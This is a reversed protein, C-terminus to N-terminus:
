QHFKIGVMSRRYQARQNETQNSLECDGYRIEGSDSTELAGVIHLLTSKGSGSEGTIALLEGPNLSFTLDELVHIPGDQTSFSKRVHKLILTSSM